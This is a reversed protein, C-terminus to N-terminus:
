GESFAAHRKRLREGFAHLEDDIANAVAFGAPVPEGPNGNAIRFPRELLHKASSLQGRLATDISNM